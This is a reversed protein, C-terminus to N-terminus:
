EGDDNMGLKTRQALDIAKLGGATPKPKPASKAADKSAAALYSKQLSLVNEPSTSSDLPMGLFQSVLLKRQYPMEPDINELVGQKMKDYLKPYVTQLTELTEPILTNNKMQQFAISPNKVVEAYRNFMNAELESPPLPKDLPDDKVVPAKAALFQIARIMTQQASQTIQPAVSYAGQTANSVTDILAQPNNALNRLKEIKESHEQLDPPSFDGKEPGEDFLSKASKELNAGHKSISKELHGLGTIGANEPDAAKEAAKLIGTNLKGNLINDLGIHSVVHEGNIEPDGLMGEHIPHNLAEAAASYSGTMPPISAAIEQASIPSQPVAGVPIETIEEPM